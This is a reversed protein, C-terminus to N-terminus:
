FLSVVKKRKEELEKGDTSVVITKASEDRTVLPAIIAEREAKPIRLSTLEKEIRAPSALKTEYPDVKYAELAKAVASEDAWRRNGRVTKERLARGPVDVGSQLLELERLQIGKLWTSFEESGFFASMKGIQAPTLAECAPLVPRDERIEPLLAAVEERRKPCIGIAACFTCHDGSHLPADPAEAAVAGPRLVDYGWAYLDKTPISWEDVAEKGFCNPQVITIVVEDACFRNDQGLAGLAYYMGQTNGTASVPKKGNKYDYIRLIGIIDQPEISADNRGYMGPYLWSLDFQKEVNLKGGFRALDGRVKDVYVTVAAVMKEDVTFRAGDAAIEEGFHEAPDSGDLLCKECLEHAATGESAYVATRKPVQACLRVSGPCALWRYASSAGISSHAAKESKDPM